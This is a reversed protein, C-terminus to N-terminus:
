MDLDEYDLRGGSSLPLSLTVLGTQRQEKSSICRDATRWIRCQVTTRRILEPLTSLRRLFEMTDFFNGYREGIEIGSKLVEAPITDPGAAKGCRIQGIAMRIEETTPPDVDM